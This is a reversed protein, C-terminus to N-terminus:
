NKLFGLKRFLSLMIIYTKIGIKRRITGKPFFRNVFPRVKKRFREEASLAPAEYIASSPEFNDSSVLCRLIYKKYQEEYWPTSKLSKWYLDAFDVSINIWPKQDGAYHVISPSKRAHLFAQYTAFKLNPFFKDTNGNGHFVNWKMPLFKVRGHFVKNMIDQDLFWYTKEELAHMLQDFVNEQRIRDLNFVILGAQFYNDPNDLGLYNRLYPGAELCGTKEDTLTGFKVFGEMVIDKVAAVLCDGLDIDLLQAVDDNVITDADIFLVKEQDRFIKPILLRAYTAPSFHGRVHVDKLVKFTNIDFFRISFNEKGSILSSFRAKNKDSVRDELILIDYNKQSNSNSIISNILAGGSHAYNDDFCIVIPVNNHSFAPEIHGNFEHEDVFTRQLEKIKIDSHKQKHLFYISLLRESIHGFVRRQQQNYNDLSIEEELESLIDFLWKSYDEFIERRMVFINTYYGYSSNNFEVVADRYKPHQKLLIDIAAQYDEIFLDDSRKYHDYNNKSGANRVDWKKPLIVDVGKFSALISEEDLGYKKQYDQFSEEKVPIIGWRDEEFDQKSSFNLHRRYHMLGLYDSTHDNKWMWYHVTLECYFPNKYSINDGRDDGPCGIVNLTNEKGAHLPVFCNGQLMAGPKHHSIYVKISM